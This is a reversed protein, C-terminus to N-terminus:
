IKEKHAERTFDLIGNYMEELSDKPYCIKELPCWGNHSRNEIHDVLKGYSVTIQSQEKFLHWAPKSIVDTHLQRINGMIMLAAAAKGVVKDAIDAGNLFSADHHLLDLLDAVGRQYFLRTEQNNRIVLTCKQEHLQRILNEM